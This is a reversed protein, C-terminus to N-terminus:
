ICYRLICSGDKCAIVGKRIAAKIEDNSIEEENLFKEAFKDDVEAAAEIIKTRLEKIKDAYEAPADAWKVMSGMEGEFTAMKGTLVDIIGNFDESVGVAIQM